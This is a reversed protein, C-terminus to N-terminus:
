TIDLPHLTSELNIESQTVGMNQWKFQEDLPTYSTSLQRTSHGMAKYTSQQFTKELRNSNTQRSFTKQRLTPPGSSNQAM